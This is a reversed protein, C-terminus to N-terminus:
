GRISLLEYFDRVLGKLVALAIGTTCGAHIANEGAELVAFGAAAALYHGASVAHRSRYLTPRM